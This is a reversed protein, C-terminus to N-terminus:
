ETCTLFDIKSIRRWRQEGENLYLDDKTNFKYGDKKCCKEITKKKIATFLPFGDNHYLGEEILWIKKV